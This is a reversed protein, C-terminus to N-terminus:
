PKPGVNNVMALTCALTITAARFVGVSPADAAPIGAELTSEPKQTSDSSMRQPLGGVVGRDTNEIIM